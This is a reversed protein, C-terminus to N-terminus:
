DETGGRKEEVLDLVVVNGGSPCSLQVEPELTGTGYVNLMPCTLDCVPRGFAMSGDNKWCQVSLWTGDPMMRELQNHENFRVKGVREDM